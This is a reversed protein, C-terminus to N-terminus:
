RRRTRRLAAFSTIVLGALMVLCGCGGSKACGDACGAPGYDHYPNAM